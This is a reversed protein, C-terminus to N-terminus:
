ARNERTARGSAATMGNGWGGNCLLQAVSMDGKLCCTSSHPGVTFVFYYDGPPLYRWRLTATKGAPVTRAGFNGDIWNKNFKWLAVSYDTIDCNSGASPHRLKLELGGGMVPFNKASRLSSLCIGITTDFGAASGAAVAPPRRALDAPVRAAAPKDSRKRLNRRRHGGGRNEPPTTSGGPWRSRRPSSSTAQSISTLEPRTGSCRIRATSATSSQMKLRRTCKATSRQTAQHHHELAPQRARPPKAIQVRAQPFPRAALALPALNPVPPKKICRFQDLYTSAKAQTGVTNGPCRTLPSAKM